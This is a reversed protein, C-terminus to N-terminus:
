MTALLAKKLADKAAGNIAAAIAQSAAAKADALKKAANAAVVKAADLEALAKAHFNVADAQAKVAKFAADAKNANEADKAAKDADAKATAAAQELALAKEGAKVAKDKDAKTAKDGKKDVDALINALEAQQKDADKRAKDAQEAAIKAAKECKQPDLVDGFLAKIIADLNDASIEALLAAALPNAGQPQAKQGVKAARKEAKDPLRYPGSVYHCLVGKDNTFTDGDVTLGYKQMRTASPAKGTGRYEWYLRGNERNCFCDYLTVLENTVTSIVNIM